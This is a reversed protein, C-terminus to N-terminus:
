WLRDMQTGICIASIMLMAWILFMFIGLVRYVLILRRYRNPERPAIEIFQSLPGIQFFERPWLAISDIEESTMKRYEKLYRRSSKAYMAILKDPRLVSLFIYVGLGFLFIFVISLVVISM